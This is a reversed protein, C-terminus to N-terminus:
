CNAGTAGSLSRVQAAAENAVTGAFELVRGEAAIRKLADDNITLTLQAVSSRDSANM